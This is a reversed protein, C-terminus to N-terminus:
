FRFTLFTGLYSQDESTGTEKLFDGAKTYNAVGMISVFPTLAYRAFVGTRWGVYSSQGETASRIVLGSLAYLGDEKSQRWLGATNAGLTLKPTPRVTVEPQVLVMNAFGLDTRLAAPQPFLPNFSNLKGDNPDKDGSGADVRVAIRPTWKVGAFTRGGVATVFWADIDLDRFSGWQKVAEVEYDWPAVKGTLRVSLTDRDDRGAVQRDFPTVSRDTNAYLLELKPATPGAGLVRSAMAGYLRYDYNTADDWSANGERLAYGAFAGGSWGDPRDYIVRAMDMANRANAGERMDFLRFGGVGFEQRGVRVRLVGDGVAAEGEVFAQHLDTRNEEAPPTGSDLGFSRADQIDVFARLSSGLNLESWLRARTQFDGDGDQLGRGFRENERNEARLRLEGGFSAWVPSGEGGVPVHKWRAWTSNRKAPDALYAYDEDYNILKFPPPAAAPTPAVSSPSPATQVPAEVEAIVPMPAHSLLAAAAAAAISM